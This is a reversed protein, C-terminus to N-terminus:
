EATPDVEERVINVELVQGLLLRNKPTCDEPQLRTLVVEYGREEACLKRDWDMVDMCHQGQAAKTENCPGSRVDHAQDACHAVHMCDQATLGGRVGFMASRPYEIHPVGRCGGYCCPCCVFAARQRMCHELVIDTAVGCAHLSTGVDFRGCFYDLNCQFFRVNALGLRQVRARARQLSEEKNELLIVECDPRLAAVVIGLHGAGSCFDVVRAGTRAVRLVEVALSQLQHKKRQLRDAPLAGGEPLADFPLTQWWAFDADTHPPAADSRIDLHLADVKSLAADIDPQKTFIQSRPKYRKSDNKYLSRTDSLDVTLHSNSRFPLKSLLARPLHITSLQERVKDLWTMLRKLENRLQSVYELPLLQDFVLGFNAFLMVDALTLQQGEAFTHAIDLSAIPVSSSIQEVRRAPKTEVGINVANLQNSLESVSRDEKKKPQDKKQQSVQERAVKYINHMRVPQAMHLEFRGFETPLAYDEDTGRVALLRQVAAVVDVECFRTWVSQEAPALMCGGKFGLLGENKPGSSKVMRRCVGCLGAVVVSDSVLVPFDCLAALNTRFDSADICEFDVASLDVHLADSRVPTAADSGSPHVFSLHLEDSSANLYRHVFLCVYSELTICVRSRDIIPAIAELYIHAAM